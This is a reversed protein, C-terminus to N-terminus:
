LSSIKGEPELTLAVRTSRAIGDVNHAIVTVYYTFGPETSILLEQTSSSLEEQLSPHGQIEILVVVYDPGADVTQNTLNWTIRSFTKNEFPTIVPESPQPPSVVCVDSTM